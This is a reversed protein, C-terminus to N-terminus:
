LYYKGMDAATVDKGCLYSGLYYEEQMEDVEELSVCHSSKLVMTGDEKFIYPALSMFNVNSNRPMVGPMRMINCRSADVAASLKPYFQPNNNPYRKQIQELLKVPDTEVENSSENNSNENETDNDQPWIIRPVYEDDDKSVLVTLYDVNKCELALWVTESAACICDKDRYLTPRQQSSSEEVVADDPLADHYIPPHPKSLAPTSSLVEWSPPVSFAFSFNNDLLLFQSLLFFFPLHM